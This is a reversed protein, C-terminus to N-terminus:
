SRGKREAQDRAEAFRRAQDREEHRAVLVFAAFCVAFIALGIIIGTV